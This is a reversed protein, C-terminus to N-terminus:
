MSIQIICRLIQRRSLFAPTYVFIIVAFIAAYQLALIFGRPYFVTFVLPPIFCVLGLALNTIKKNYRSFLDVFIICQFFDWCWYFFTIIAIDIFVNM